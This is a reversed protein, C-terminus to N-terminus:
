EDWTIGVLLPVPLPKKTHWCTRAFVSTAQKFNFALVCWSEEMTFTLRVLVAKKNKTIEFNQCWKTTGNTHRIKHQYSAPQALLAGDIEHHFRAMRKGSVQM